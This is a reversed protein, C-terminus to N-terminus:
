SRAVCTRLLIKEFTAAIRSIDFTAEAYRRARYGLSKRLAGDNALSKAAAIWDDTRRPDIVFGAGSQLVVSAALNDSPAALLVPRAACLYSLVKSPVAFAGAEADLTALLVDASALAHPMEDYPQFDLLLLNDLKPLQELRERGVGETIVVVKCTSGLSQALRYLLDPRHKYGLTGSYLFVIKDSLGNKDSWANVRPLSEIEDLPGWNEIVTIKLAPVGWRLLRDRFAPAIVVIADSAACVREELWRFPITLRGAPGPFRSDLLFGIALSYVDQVWHVFGVGNRRCHWVIEAQVDIPTNGSLMVDFRRSSILTKISQAYTRHAALRRLLSYKTFYSSLAIGKIMLQGTGSASSELQGKPGELGVAYAHTVDNGRRVLERSLQIGFSHGAFDHVLYRM